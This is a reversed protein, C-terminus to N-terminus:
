KFWAQRAGRLTGCRSRVTRLVAGNTSWEIRRVPWTPLVLVVRSRNPQVPGVPLSWCLNFERVGSWSWLVRSGGSLGHLGLSVLRKGSRPMDVTVPPGAQCPGSCASSSLASTSGFKGAPCYTCSGSGDTSYQGAQCTNCFVGDGYTGGSCVCCNCSFAFCCLQFGSNCAVAAQLM